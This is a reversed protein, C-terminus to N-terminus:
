EGDLIERVKVALDPLLFPKEIFHMGKELVGHRAISDDTYGSMFLCKLRPCLLFLKNSLDMGNMEPMIVDTVILQINCNNEHTLCVAEGPTVAALVNYGQMELFQTVIKLIAADDEVVMITEHGRPTSMAQEGPQPQRDDEQYRPLYIRFTTGINFETSVDIFGNNQRVIGYVTSLGLGTGKGVEKTTFFPEFINSLTNKDMGNGTDNVSLLVYDGPGADAHETCFGKDLSCNELTIVITGINDIADRANVCLNVLIQDIQAPDMKVRWLDAAPFYELHIDEGILRGLMKLMGTVVENLDIVKPVIAQKRAFALLQRTLASAREAATNIENFYVSTPQAPDSEMQGIFAYSQIAMLINNFDHAMGGALRGISEMKQAQLLQHELAKLDAEHQKQRSIDEKVAVFNVIVGTKDTIPGICAREWYLEGNKKKNCLEGCWTEGRTISQWLSQYVNASTYGSKLIRTSKGLIDEKMYGTITCFAPNVYEINGNLDTISISTTCQEVAQYLKLLENETFARKTCDDGASLTGTIRGQEDRLLANHWAIVRLAGSKTVVVSKWYELFHKERGTIVSLFKPYGKQLGEPQTLCTGFWNQGIIEDERYGLVQCAKRNITSIKGEGDLAVIMTEVTDLYSQTRDRELRLQEEAQKREAMDWVFDALTSVMDVDRQTYDTPKNGVGMVAVINGGRFVPVVLERVVQAHGEPMGKRTSLSVYDNHIVPRRTRVSDCWVGAQAIGYHNGAGEAKCFMSSTRTSWACLTLAQKDFDVSHYFGICSGTLAEGEDLATRLLENFSHNLSYEMLRRRASLLDAYFGAADSHECHEKDM